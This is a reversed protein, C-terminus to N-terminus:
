EMVQLVEIASTGSMDLTETVVEYLRTALVDVVWMEAAMKGEKCHELSVTGEELGDDAVYCAVVLSMVVSLCWYTVMAHTVFTYIKNGRAPFGPSESDSKM